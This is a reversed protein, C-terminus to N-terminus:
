AFMGEDIQILMQEVLRAGAETQLMQMPTEGGFRKKPKRMWSLAKERNAFVDEARALVRAARVAKDSEDVSLSEVRSRRHKFTRLPIVIEHFEDKTLGHALLTTIIETPLRRRVAQAWELETQATQGLWDGMNGLWAAM